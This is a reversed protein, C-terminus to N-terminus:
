EGDGRKQLEASWTGDHFKITILDGASVGDASVISSGKRQIVAYGRQLVREPDLARLQDSLRSLRDSMRSLSRKLENNIRIQADDVRQLHERLIQEPRRMGHRSMLLEYRHQLREVKRRLLAATQREKALLTEVIETRDAVALEAAATPTAARLDAVFDAISFDIEHGVASIIPVPSEAIARALSESNFAALDEASGGGRGVIIIDPKMAYLRRLSSEIDRDAGEGQVRAPSFLLAVTPMRRAITNVIDEKAAGTPSTVVGVTRPFPPLPRKKKPDFLGEAALKRKLEEFRAALNGTGVPAISICDLQYAGRPPYVSISGTAIVETGETITRDLSRTKWMVCALVAKDDKLTFYRHGSSAVTLRSIEGAVEVNRFQGGLTSRIAETIGAVTLTGEPLNHDRLPTGDEGSLEEKGVRRLKM